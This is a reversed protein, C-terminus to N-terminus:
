MSRPLCVDACLFTTSLSEIHTLCIQQAQQCCTCFRTSGVLTQLVDTYLSLEAKGFHVLRAKKKPATCRTQGKASHFSSRGQRIRALLLICRAHPTTHVCKIITRKEHSRKRVQIMAASAHMNQMMEDEQQQQSVGLTVMVSITCSACFVHWFAHVIVPFM